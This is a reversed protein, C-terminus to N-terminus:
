NAKKMMESERSVRDTHVTTTVLSEGSGWRNDQRAKAGVVGRM